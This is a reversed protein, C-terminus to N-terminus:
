QVASVDYAEWTNTGTRLILAHICATPFTTGAPTTDFGGGVTTFGTNANVRWSDPNPDEVFFFIEFCFAGLAGFAAQFVTDMETGTPFSSIVPATAVFMRGNLLETASIPTNDSREVRNFM